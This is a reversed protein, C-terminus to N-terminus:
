RERCSAREIQDQFISSIDPLDGFLDNFEPDPEFGDGEKSYTYFRNGSIFYLRNNIRKITSIGKRDEGLSTFRKRLNFKELGPSPELQHLYQDRLLWVFGSEMEFDKSSNNIGEIRNQFELGQPGKQFVAFGAYNAGLVHDPQGPFERFGYYGIDDMNRVVKGDEIVLAGKNNACIIEGGILQINWSQAATGEVLDFSRDLFSGDMDHQFVGQNTAVYLQGQHSITAYVSSFYLSSGFYTFPSNINLYAIGNDLGLWLNNGSDVFSSLVTNNKLGRKLDIHQIINGELDCIVVGGLVTNLVLTRGEILTGGLASNARVMENAENQWPLMRKGDHLFLGAELTAFLLSDPGLPFMGWIEYNNLATGGDLPTFSGDRYELVGKSTHQFYVKDGVLFSFQFRGEQAPLVRIEGDKLIYAANFSQFIVEEGLLHIKWFFDTNGYREERIESMLSRYQLIGMEDSRFYGFENYGGVYIRGSNSDVKVSRINKSSPIGYTRWTSGDFQLLGNNNAFYMNGNADHDIDWNQTGSRYETKTYNRINPLGIGKIQGFLACNASLLFLLVGLAKPLSRQVFPFHPIEIRM